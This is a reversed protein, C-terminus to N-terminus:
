NAQQISNGEASVRDNQADFVIFVNRDTDLTVRYEIKKTCYVM